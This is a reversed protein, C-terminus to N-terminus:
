MDTQISHLKHMEHEIPQIPVLKEPLVHYETERYVDNNYPLVIITPKIGNKMMKPKKLKRKPVYGINLLRYCYQHYSKKYAYVGLAVCILVTILVVLGYMQLVNSQSVKCQHALFVNYKVLQNSHECVIKDTYRMNHVSCSCRTNFVVDNVRVRFHTSNLRLANDEYLHITNNEFLLESDEYEDQSSIGYLAGDRMDHFYNDEIFVNGKVKLHFADGEILKFYSSEIKVTNLAHVMFSLSALHEFYVHFLKLEKRCTVEFFTRSPVHSLFKSNEIILKDMSIKKFAQIEVNDLHCDSLQIKDLNNLNTFAYSKIHSFFVNSFSIVNISGQFAFDSIQVTSRAIQVDIGRSDTGYSRDEDWAMGNPEILVSKVNVIAIRQLAQLGRLSDTGLSVLDCNEIQIVSVSLPFSINSNVTAKNIEIRNVNTFACNCNVKGDSSCKCAELDCLDHRIPQQVLAMVKVQQLTALVLLLILLLDTDM